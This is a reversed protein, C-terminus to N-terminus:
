ALVGVVITAVLVLLVFLTLVTFPRDGATSFLGASVVVRAIPTAILVVLGVYVFASPAGAALSPLLPGSLGMAHDPDGLGVGQALYLLLGLVFFGGALLLGALLL